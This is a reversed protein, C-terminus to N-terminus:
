IEAAVGMYKGELSWQQCWRCAIIRPPGSSQITGNKKHCTFISRRIKGSSFSISFISQLVDFDRILMFLKVNSCRKVLQFYIIEM